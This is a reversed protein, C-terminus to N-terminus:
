RGKWKDMLDHKKLFYPLNRQDVGLLRAADRRVGGARRLAEELVRREAAHVTKRLNLGAGDEDAAANAAEPEADTSAFPLSASTLEGSPELLIGREIVNRLERVNGPWSYDELTRLTDPHLRRVSKGLRAAIEALFAQALVPVDARRHRLPPVEITMVNIRYFLDARFRGADVEAQLDANSASIVRVDVSTPRSDGLREFVGDQLVRLVKAQAVLPLSNIEDLFLTGGDAVRFRGERDSVAGTYAGKRHGFFESEFLEVPVAACNVQVFAGGSRPSDRHIVKALEEKGCGSEGLILVATDSPAALRAMELARRWGTSVGLPERDAGRGGSSRLYALERRAHSQSLARELVLTLEDPNTPKLLYDFAGAKMCEVSSVVDGYATLVIVPLAPEKEAIERVLVVGGEGPMRLDTVVADLGALTEPRLAEDVSEAQRVRYEKRRLVDALSERVYAEDDVILVTGRPKM